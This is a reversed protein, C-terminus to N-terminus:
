KVLDTYLSMHPVKKDFVKSQMLASVSGRCKSEIAFRFGADLALAKLEEFDWINIHDGPHDSRFTLGERVLEKYELFNLQNIESPVLEASSISNKYFRCRPTSTERILFDIQDMSTSDSSYNKNKFIDAHRWKWYENQFQSVEFLFRGDPCVIRLVGDVKLVRFCEEILKKVYKFEIHEIVHSIYINKVTNDEFPIKDCRIDYEIREKLFKEKSKYYHPTYIDLSKFGPLIYKGAGINLNIEDDYHRRKGSNLVGTQLGFHQSIKKKFYFYFRTIKNLLNM